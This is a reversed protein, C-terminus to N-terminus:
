AAPYAFAARFRRTKPLFDPPLGKFGPKEVGKSATKKICDTTCRRNQGPANYAILSMYRVSNNVNIGSILIIIYNAVM